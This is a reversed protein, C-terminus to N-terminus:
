GVEMFDGLGGLPELNDVKSPGLDVGLAAANSFPFPIGQFFTSPGLIKWHFVQKQTSSSGSKYISIVQKYFNGLNGQSLICHEM